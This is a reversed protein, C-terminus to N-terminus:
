HILVTQVQAWSKKVMEDKRVLDNYTGQVFSIAGLVVIILIAVVALAIITGRKM